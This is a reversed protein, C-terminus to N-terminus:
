VFGMFDLLDDVFGLARDISEKVLEFTFEEIRYLYDCIGIVTFVDIKCDMYELAIDIVRVKNFIYYTM